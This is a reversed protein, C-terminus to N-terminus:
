LSLDKRKTMLKRNKLLVRRTAQAEVM